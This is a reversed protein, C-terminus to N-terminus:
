SNVRHPARGLTQGSGRPRPTCHPVLLTFHRVAWDDQLHPRDGLHERPDPGQVPHAHLNTGPLDVRDAPLVTRALRCQHLHERPHVGVAGVLTLDVVEAFLDAELVDLGALVGPDHDDVLLEREDGLERDGLVDEQAVLDLAREADVPGLGTAARDVQQRADAQVLRGVLHDLVDAHALLLEHLDGLREGLVHLQEDEVLRRRCQVLVVRRVQQVQEPAQAGTAQGADHDGVLEVLDGRDGVRDRDDTVALRDLRQVDTGTADVLVADDAPHDTPGELRPERLVRRVDAGGEELHAVPRDLVRLHGAPQDALARVEVDTAPLDDAEGADHAGAAGLESPRQEATGVPAVEATLDEDLATGHRDVRHLLRDVM